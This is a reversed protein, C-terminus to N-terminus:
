PLLTGDNNNNPHSTVSQRARAGHLALLKTLKHTNSTNNGGTRELSNVAAAWRGRAGFSLDAKTYAGAGFNFKGMWIVAIIDGRERELM